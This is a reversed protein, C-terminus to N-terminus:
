TWDSKFERQTGNQESNINPNFQAGGNSNNQNQNAGQDNGTLRNNAKQAAGEIMNALGSTQFKVGTQPVFKDVNSGDYDSFDAYVACNSMTLMLAGFIFVSLIKNM